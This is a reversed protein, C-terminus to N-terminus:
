FQKKEGYDFDKLKDKTEALQSDFVNRVYELVDAKESKNSFIRNLISTSLNEPHIFYGISMEGLNSKYYMLGSLNHKHWVFRNAVFRPFTTRILEERTPNGIDNEYYIRNIEGIIDERTSHYQSRILDKAAGLSLHNTYRSYIESLQTNMVETNEILKDIKRKENKDILFKFLAQLASYTLLLVLVLLAQEFNLKDVKDFIEQGLM